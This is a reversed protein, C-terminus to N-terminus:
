GTAPHSHTPSPPPTGLSFRQEDGLPVQHPPQASLGPDSMWGAESRGSGVKCALALLTVEERFFTHNTLSSLAALSVSGCGTVLDSRAGIAGVTYLFDTETTPEELVKRLLCLSGGDVVLCPTLAACHNQYSM